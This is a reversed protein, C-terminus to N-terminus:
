THRRLFDLVIPGVIEPHTHQIVHGAHNVILMESHPINKRMTVMQDPNGWLDDEGAMLLTPVTIKQLDNISYNPNVALNDALHKILDRWYGPYKNRDHLESIKKASEPDDREIREADAFQNAEKVLDDNYYNAGVCVLSRVLDPRTMGIHIATIAGDSVGGIYVPHIDLKEIFQCVDQAILEYTLYGIPNNTRGHGRYEIHIVKYEKAFLPMLDRWGAAPMDISGLAGHLLVFPEGSGMEEYYMRIDSVDIYPM